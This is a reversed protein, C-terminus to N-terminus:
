RRGHRKRVHRRIGDKLEDLTRPPPPGEPFLARHVDEFTYRGPRHVDTASPHKESAPPKESNKM